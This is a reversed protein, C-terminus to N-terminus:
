PALAARADRREHHEIAARDRGIQDLALQETVLSAGEGARVGIVRARELARLTADSNRSSIPSSGSSSCGRRSRTSPRDSPAGPRRCRDSPPDVHTDDRRGIAVQARQHRRLLEPLIQVEPQRRRDDLQRRQAITELVQGQEHRAEHLIEPPGVQLHRFRREIRQAAVAPRAVNALELVDERAREREDLGTRHDLRMVEPERRRRGLVGASSRSCSAPWASTLSSRTAIRCVNCCTRPLLTCAAFIRPMAGDVNYSFTM